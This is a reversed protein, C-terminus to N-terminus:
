KYQMWYDYANGGFYSEVSKDEANEYPSLRSSLKKLWAPDNIEGRANSHLVEYNNSVYDRCWFVFKVNKQDGMAHYFWMEYPYANPDYIESVMENPPGYKLYIRGRDTQYGKILKSGYEKQVFNVRIKYETWAQEPNKPNRKTWFTYFFRKMQEITIKKANTHYFNQESVTAIPMTSLIYEKLLLSDTIKDVFTNVYQTESYNQFVTDQKPNNRQFFINNAAIVCDSNNIIELILNYNGSPLDSINFQHALVNVPALTIQKKLFHKEPISTEFTEIFARVFVPSERIKDTNYYETYFNLTNISEPYYDNLKQLMEFRNKSYNIEQLLIIGSFAPADKEYSVDAFDTYNLAKENNNLDKVTFSLRYSGNALLLNKIDIFDQKNEPLSDPYSASVLIYNLKKVLSDAEFVDITIQVEAEYDNNSTPKYVVSKGDIYISFELYPEQKDTCFATYNLFVRLKQAHINVSFLVLIIFIFSKRM